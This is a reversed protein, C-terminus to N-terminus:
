GYLEASKMGSGDTSWGGGAVLVRGNALLTATHGLRPYAMPGTATLSNGAPNFLYAAHMGEKAAWTEGGTILVEGGPLLTATQGEGGHTDACAAVATGTAPDFLDAFPYGNTGGSGQRKGAILVLGNTLLTASAEERQLTLGGTVSFTGLAPDFRECSGLDQNLGEDGGWGGAVLVQGSKLLVAAHVCRETLMHGTTGFTGAAPDYIQADWYVGGADRGGTLLVRGDALLTAQHDYRAQVMAGTATFLGTDPHYLEASATAHGTAAARGGAILVLGNGLLTATHRSRPVNMAGSTATFTGSAPDYLEASAAGPASAGGAMLVQNGPLRTATHFQRGSVMSGTPSFTVKAPPIIVTVTVSAVAKKAGSAALLKYTTTAAPTVQVGTGSVSGVGPQVSLSNASAVVWALQSSQGSALTAPTATFSAIVPATPLPFPPVNPLTASKPM